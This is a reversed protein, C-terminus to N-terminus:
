FLKKGIGKLPTILKNKSKTVSNNKKELLKQKFIKEDGMM